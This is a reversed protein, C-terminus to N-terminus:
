VHWEALQRLLDEHDQFKRVKFFAGKVRKVLQEVAGTQQPAYAWCVEPVFGIKTAALAFTAIWETVTGDSKWAIAVTKPRDFVACLPVGGFTVFHDLVTRCLTEATEDRVITVQVM